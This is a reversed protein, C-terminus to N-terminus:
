KSAFKTVFKPFFLSFIVKLYTDLPEFTQDIQVRIIVGQWSNVLIQALEEPNQEQVLEGCDRAERLAQAFIQSWHDFAFKVASRMPPSLTSLELALKAILCQHDTGHMKYDEQVHLFFSEIRAAPSSLKRNGLYERLERGARDAVSEVIQVGFDEKTEFYHYFSGKPVQAEALIENLGAGNYSKRTMVAIGAEILIQKTNKKELIQPPVM